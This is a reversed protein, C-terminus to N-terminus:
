IDNQNINTIIVESDDEIEKLKPLHGGFLPVVAGPISCLCIMLRNLLAIAAPRNLANDSGPEFAAAFFLIFLAEMSGLGGPLPIAATILWIIPMIMLCQLFTINDCHLAQTIMWIAVIALGQIFSTLLLSALVTPIHRRYIRIAQDFQKLKENFPLKELFHSLRM